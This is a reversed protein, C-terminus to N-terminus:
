PYKRRLRGERQKSRKEMERREMPTIPAMTGGNSGISESDSRKGGRRQRGVNKRKPLQQTRSFVASLVRPCGRSRENKRAANSTSTCTTPTEGSRRLLEVSRGSTDKTSANATPWTSPSIRM